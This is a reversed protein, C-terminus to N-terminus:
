HFNRVFNVKLLEKKEMELKKVKIRWQSLPDVNDFYKMLTDINKSNAQMDKLDNSFEKSIDNYRNEREFWNVRLMLSSVRGAVDSQLRTLKEQMEDHM